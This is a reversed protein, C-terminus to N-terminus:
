ALLKEMWTTEERSLPPKPPPLKYDIRRAYGGEDYTRVFAQVLDLSISGSTPTLPVAVSQPLADRLSLPWCGFAPGGGARHLCLAYDCPAHTRLLARPVSLVDQGGRLLDIELLNVASALLQSQKALYERRGEGPEKNKPSLLEIVTVVAEDRGRVELIEIFPERIEELTLRIELPAEALAVAGAREEPRGIELVAADAYFAKDVSELYLREGLTAVFGEPLLTTLQARISYLLSQHFDAWLRAEELYPDM